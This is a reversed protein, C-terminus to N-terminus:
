LEAPLAAGLFSFIDVVGAGSHCSCTIFAVTSPFARKLGLAALMADPELAGNEGGGLTQKNAAVVFVCDSLLESHLLQHLERKAALLRTEDRSDVM